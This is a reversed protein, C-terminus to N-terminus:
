ARMPACVVWNPVSADHAVSRTLTSVPLRSEGPPAMNECGGCKRGPFPLPRPNEVPRHRDRTDSRGSARESNGTATSASSIRVGPSPWILAKTVTAPLGANDAGSEARILSASASKSNMTLMSGHRLSVVRCALTIRGGGPGSVRDCYSRGNLRIATRFTAM